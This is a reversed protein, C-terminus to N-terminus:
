PFNIEHCTAKWSFTKGKAERDEEEEERSKEGMEEGEAEIKGMKGLLDHVQYYHDKPHEVEDKTTADVISKM